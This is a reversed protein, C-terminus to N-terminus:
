SVLPSERVILLGPGIEFTHSGTALHLAFNFTGPCYDQYAQTTIVYEQFQSTLNWSTENLRRFGPENNQLRAVLRAQASSTSRLWVRAEILNGRAIPRQNLMSVGIMHALAESRDIKIELARGGPVTSNAISKSRLPFFARRQDFLRWPRSNTTAKIHAPTLGLSDVRQRCNTSAQGDSRLQAIRGDWPKSAVDTAILFPATAGLMLLTFKRFPSTTKEFHPMEILLEQL